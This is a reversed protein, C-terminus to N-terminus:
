ATKKASRKSPQKGNTERASSGLANIVRAAISRLGYAIAFGLLFSLYGSVGIWEKPKSLWTPKWVSVVLAAITVVAVGVSIAGSLWARSSLRLRPSALISTAALGLLGGLLGQGVLNLKLFDAVQVNLLRQVAYFVLASIALVQAGIYDIRSPLSARRLADCQLWEVALRFWFYVILAIFVYPAAQPSKLTIRVSELPAEGLEIGVLEWALLLGSFLGLQTRAKHYQGSLPPPNNADGVENVDPAM